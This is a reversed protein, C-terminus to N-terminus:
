NDWAGEQIWREIRNIEEASLAGGVPMQQGYLGTGAVKNWLVSGAANYPDVRLAPAYGQSPVNVLNAYSQGSGLYLGGSTIQIHCANCNADFIPQIHARYSVSLATGSLLVFATDTDPDNSTIALRTAQVGASDPRFRIVLTTDAGVPLLVNTLVVPLVFGGGTGAMLEMGYLVLTTDGGNAITLLTDTSDGVLLTGFEIASPSLILDPVPAEAGTGTLPIGRELDPDELDTVILLASDPILDDPTYTVTITHSAGTSLQLQGVSDVTFVAGTGGSLAIAIRIAISGDNTVQVSDTRSSGLTVTGFSLTQPQVTFSHVPEPEKGFDSCATNLLLLTTVSYVTTKSVVHAIGWRGTPTNKGRYQM